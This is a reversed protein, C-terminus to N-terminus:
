KHFRKRFRRIIKMGFMVGDYIAVFRNVNNLLADYRNNSVQPAFMDEFLNHIDNKKARLQQLTEEKQVLIENLVDNDHTQQSRRM